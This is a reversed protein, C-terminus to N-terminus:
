EFRVIRLHTRGRIHFTKSSLGMVVYGVPIAVLGILGMRKVYPKDNNILNNVPDAITLFIGGKFLLEGFFLQGKRYLPTHIKKIEHLYLTDNNVMIASDLLLRIEGQIKKKDTTVFVYTKEQPLVIRRMKTGRYIVLEKQAQM